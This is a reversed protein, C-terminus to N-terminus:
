SIKLLIIFRVQETRNLADDFDFSYVSAFTLKFELSM